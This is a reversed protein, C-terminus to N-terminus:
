ERDKRKCKCGKKGGGGNATEPEGTDAFAALQTDNWGTLRKINEREEGARSDASERYQALTEPTCIIYDETNGGEAAEKDRQALIDDDVRHNIIYRTQFNERDPTVQLAIDQPFTDANYRAHMRTVFVDPAFPPTFAGPRAPDEGNQKEEELWFVGLAELEERSLPDAACPDCWGMDWAYETIVAKHDHKEVIEAFMDRYFAPFGDKIYAPVEVGTDTYVTKYNTAEVRGKQTLTFLFIDQFEKANVTGLRIPLMFKNSTFSLQLPRLYGRGEAEFAGTNVKAVFFYMNQKIYSELVPVAEPPMSYGNQTLWTQLGASEQASLIVIDYEGVTYSDEVTVGLAKDGAAAGPTDAVSELYRIPSCPDPDHYEVLRPATYKDLHDIIEPEVTNVMDRTVKQPSPVVMAFESAEGEFDNAMTIITRDDHRVLVVKSANNFVDTGAEAVFFGCFARAESFCLLFPVAFLAAKLMRSM